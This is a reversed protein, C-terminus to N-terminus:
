RSAKSSPPWSAPTRSTSRLFTSATKANKSSRADEDRLSRELANGASAGYIEEVAKPDLADVLIRARYHV